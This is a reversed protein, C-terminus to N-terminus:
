SAEITNVAPLPTTVTFPELAAVKATEFLSVTPPVSPAPAVVTVLKFAPAPVIWVVPVTVPPVPVNVFRDPVVIVPLRAIPVLLMVPAVFTVALPVTVPPVPVNVFRDPVVIVPLRARPPLLIVPPPLMVPAVIVPVANLPPVPDNEVSVESPATLTLVLPAAAVFM